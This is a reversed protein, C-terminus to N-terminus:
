KLNSSLNIKLIIFLIAVTAILALFIYTLIVWVKWEQIRKKYFESLDHHEVDKLYSQFDWNIKCGFVFAYCFIIVGILRVINFSMDHDNKRFIAAFGIIGIALSVLSCVTKFNSCHLAIYSEPSHDLTKM